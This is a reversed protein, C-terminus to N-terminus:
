VGWRRELAAIAAIRKAPAPHSLFWAPMTAASPARRDLKDLLSKQAATGIGAKSLLAAAYADAEFEDSQSLRAAMLAALAQVLLPGLGPLVRAMATMGASRLANQATMDIMRRRAHGLAVHGLEHAVVSALEEASIEGSKWAEVMGRTLFIRGDPAAMGNVAAIEFVHVRLKGTGLALAMASLVPDLGVEALPTSRADLQRKLRWASFGWAAVAYLIALLIPPLKLM